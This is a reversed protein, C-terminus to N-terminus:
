SFAPDRRRNKAAGVAAALEAPEMSVGAASLIDEHLTSPLNADLIARVVAAFLRPDRELDGAFDTSLEGVAGARLERLNPGPSGVGSPTRVIWLGDTTLHHFPYGPSTDRPPGFEQLLRRIDREAETFTTASTGRRQLRGLVYLLLLPKHAAREGGRRWQKLSTVRHVWEQSV